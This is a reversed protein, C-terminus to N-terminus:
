RSPRIRRHSSLVSGSGRLDHMRARARALAKHRLRARGLRRRLARPSARGNGRAHVGQTRLSPAAPQAAQSQTRPRDGQMDHRPVAATTASRTNNSVEDLWMVIAQDPDDFATIRNGNRFEDVLDNGSGHARDAVTVLVAVRVDIANCPIDVLRAASRLLQKTRRPVGAIVRLTQNAEDREAANRHMLHVVVSRVLWLAIWNFPRRSPWLRFILWWRRLADIRPRDVLGIAMPKLHDAAMLAAPLSILRALIVYRDDVIRGERKLEEVLWVVDGALRDISAPRGGRGHFARRAHRGHVFDYNAIRTIGEELPYWRNADATLGPLAIVTAAEPDRGTYEYSRLRAGDATRRWRRRITGPGRVARRFRQYEDNYLHQSLCGRRGFPSGADGGQAHFRAEPLLTPQAATAEQKARSVARARRGGGRRVRAAFDKGLRPRLAARSARAATLSNRPPSPSPVRVLEAESYVGIDPRGSFRVAVSCCRPSPLLAVVEGWGLEVLHTHEVRDGVRLQRSGAPDMHVFTVEMM